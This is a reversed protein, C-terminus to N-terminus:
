DGAYMYTSVEPELYPEGTEVHRLDEHGLRTMMDAHMSCYERKGSVSVWVVEQTCDAEMQGLWVCTM